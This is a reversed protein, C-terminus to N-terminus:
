ANSRLVVLWHVLVWKPKRSHETYHFGPDAEDSNLSVRNIGLRAGVYPKVPTNTNFDYIASVGISQFKLKYYLHSDDEYEGREISKHHTYDAAVRSTVLIMVLLYVLALLRQKIM